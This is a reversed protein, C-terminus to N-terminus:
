YLGEIEADALLSNEYAKFERQALNARISSSLNSIQEPNFKDLEGSAVKTLSLVIYDGTDSVFGTTLPLQSRAPLSFARDRILGDVIGGFGKTDISVQWPLEEQKALAEIDSGDLVKALMESGKKEVLKSAQEMTLIEVIDDRVVDLTLMKIPLFERLKIIVIRTPSLEIVDSAHGEKLVDPEFAANVVSPFAGVGSGGRRPFPESTKLEIDMDDGVESLSEANYALERLQDIKEPLLQEASQRAFQTHIREKEQEYVLPEPTEQETLRILHTGSNTLLPASIQGVELNMVAETFAEPFAALDVFGLDGGQEASGMDDSYQRALDDFLAGEALKGQVETIRQGNIFTDENAFLIHEIRSRTLDIQANLELDFQERILTEDVTVSALLDDVELELYDIIVQEETKFTQENDQYYEAIQAEEITVTKRLESIPVTLYYYDRKQEILEATLKLDEATVMGTGALGSSMQSVLMSESLAAFYTKQTHGMQNLIFDYTGRDFRGDVQFAPSNKLLEAFVTKGVGMGGEVARQSIVKERVLRDQVPKRLLEDDLLAPDLGEYQGLLRQKHLALARDVELKSIDEGNVNLEAQASGGGQFIQDIGVLAFPISILVVIFVATGKLNDRFDQLM